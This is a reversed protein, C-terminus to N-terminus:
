TTSDLLRFSPTFVKPPSKHGIPFKKFDYVAPSLTIGPKIEYLSDQFFVRRIWTLFYKALKLFFFYM